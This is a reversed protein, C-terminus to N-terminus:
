NAKPLTKQENKIMAGSVLTLIGGIIIAWVARGSLEDGSQYARGDCKAHDTVLSTQGYIQECAALGTSSMKAGQDSSTIWAGWGLFIIGVVLVAYKM